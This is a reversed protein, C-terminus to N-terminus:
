KTSSPTQVRRLESVKLYVLLMNDYFVPTRYRITQEILPLHLKQEAFLSFPIGAGRLAEARGAEFIRLYSGHYWM